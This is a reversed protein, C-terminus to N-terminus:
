VYGLSAQFVLTLQGVATLSLLDGSPKKSAVVSTLLYPFVVLDYRIQIFELLNLVVM